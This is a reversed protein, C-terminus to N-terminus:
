KEKWDCEWMVVLNYGKERIIEERELTRNCTHGHECVCKVHTNVGKYEGIVRGGLKKISEIFNQKSTEPDNCSCIKCMGRNQQINAPYPNCTHGEKCM